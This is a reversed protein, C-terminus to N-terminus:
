KPGHAMHWAQTHQRRDMTALPPHSVRPGCIVSLLALANLFRSTLLWAQIGAKEKVSREDTAEFGARDQAASTPLLYCVFLHTLM